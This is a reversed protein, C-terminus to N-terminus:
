PHRVIMVDAVSAEASVLAACDAPVGVELREAVSAAVIGDCLSRGAALLGVRDGVVVTPAREAGVAVVV